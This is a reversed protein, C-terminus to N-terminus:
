KNGKKREKPPLPAEPEPESETEPAPPPTPPLKKEPWMRHIYEVLAAMNIFKAKASNPGPFIASLENILDEGLPVAEAECREYLDKTNFPKQSEKFLAMFFLGVDIKNRKNNLCLFDARRLIVERRDPGEITWNHYVGGFTITFNKRCKMRKVRELLQLFQKNVWVETMLLNQLKVKRKLMIELAVCADAASMPNYSLDLTVLGKALPLQSIIIPISPGEFRNNSIDLITLTELSMLRKLSTAIREGELSNWSLNVVSLMISNSMVNLLKCTALNFLMNASLDLHTIRDKFEFAEALAFAAARGLDNKRLNLIKVPMGYMIIKALHQGGEDGLMNRSLNLIKLTHNRYLTDGFKKLGSLGIRCGTLNLEELTTNSNLMQGLHYCADDSLFNDTLILKRVFRNNSLAMAMARVGRPDVCYYSLNIESNVLNRHFIRVPCQNMEKCAALYLTQGNDDHIIPKEPDLLAEKIGPDLVAPYNYYVHGPVDSDSLAVYEACIEGSGPSYLGQSYLTKKPNTVIKAIELSSWESMPPEEGSSVEEVEFVPAVASAASSSGSTSM